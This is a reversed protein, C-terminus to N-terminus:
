LCFEDITKGKINIAKVKVEKGLVDVVVFHYEAKPGAVVGKKSKFSDKLKEGAGGSIIQIVEDDPSCQNLDANKKIVRRSYNHEHSSFVIRAKSKEVIRWFNDRDEVHKDLCTKIHAGTPFAPSHVFIFKHDKPEQVAKELWELQVGTVKGCQGVHYSNLVILRTNCIDIYYATGNYEELKGDPRLNSYHEQFVNEAKDDIPDNNVEHNGVVPIVKINPMREFIIKKFRNLQERLIENDSSGAVSDGLVVIFQPPQELKKIQELIKTLVKKNVGGEKGKSDGFVIFRLGSSSTLDINRSCEM